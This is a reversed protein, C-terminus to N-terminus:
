EGLRSGEPLRREGECEQVPQRGQDWGRGARWRWRYRRARGYHGRPATVARAPSGIARGTESRLRIAGSWAGAARPGGGELLVGMRVCASMQALRSDSYPNSWRTLPYAGEWEGGDQRDLGSSRCRHVRTRALFQWRQTGGCGGPCRGPRVWVVEERGLPRRGTAVRGTQGPLIRQSVANFTRDKMASGSATGDAGWM